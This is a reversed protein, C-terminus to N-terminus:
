RGGEVVSDRRLAEDLVRHEFRKELEFIKGSSWNGLELSTVMCAGLHGVISKYLIYAISFGSYLGLDGRGCHGQPFPM